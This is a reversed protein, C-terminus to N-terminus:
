FVRHCHKYLAYGPKRALSVSDSQYRQRGAHHTPATCDPQSPLEAKNFRFLAKQM